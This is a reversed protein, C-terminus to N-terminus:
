HDSKSRATPSRPNVKKRHFSLCFLASMKAELLNPGEWIWRSGGSRSLFFTFLGSGLTAELVVIM